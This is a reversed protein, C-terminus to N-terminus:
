FPTDFSSTVYADHTVQAISARQKMHHSLSLREADVLPWKGAHAQPQPSDWQQPVICTILSTHTDFLLLSCRFNVQTGWDGETDGHYMTDSEQAETEERTTHLYM